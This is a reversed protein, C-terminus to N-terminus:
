RSFLICIPSPAAVTSAADGLKGTQPDIPFVSIDNSDQHACLLWKGSSDIKFHRPVKGGCPADQLLTLKGTDPDRQYVVISDHGRNSGYVYKGNPHVEIEATTNGGKFDPPLTPVSGLDQFMGNTLATATVTNALENIIYANKWDPSFALHRPGAGPASVFPPLPEGLTSSEADFPYIFVSDLGLDPVYLRKNDKSFYVGHAHPGAQRVKNPGEGSNSIVTALDQPVGDQGLTITAFSGDGYNAVAVTRGTEEVAVHCAGKGGSSAEGLFKLPKDGDLSFAAVSNTGDDFAEKPQGCAYLIPKTPHLALFGPNAYEAALVPETLKGTAEDFEARYIGKSSSKGGTNTGIFITGGQLPISLLCLPLLSKFTM